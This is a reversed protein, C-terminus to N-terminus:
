VHWIHHSQGLYDFKKPYCKEPFRNVYIIAGFLYFFDGMVLIKVNAYSIYDPDNTM